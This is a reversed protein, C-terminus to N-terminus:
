QHCIKLFMILSSMEMSMLLGSVKPPIESSGEKERRPILAYCMHQHKMGDIFQREDVLCVRVSSCVKEGEKIFPKLKHFFGVKQLLTRIEMIMMYLMGILSGHDEWCYISFMWQSSTVSLRM